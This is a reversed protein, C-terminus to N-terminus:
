GVRLVTVPLRRDARRTAIARVKEAVYRQVVGLLQPFLVHPPAECIDKGVFHRTLDAAM